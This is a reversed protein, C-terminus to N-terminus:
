SKQRIMPILLVQGARYVLDEDASNYLMLIGDDTILPTPGPEILRSDFMGERPQMVPEEIPTWNILDDSTAAWINTDGYYMWYKGNIKQPM